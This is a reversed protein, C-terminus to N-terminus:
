PKDTIIADGGATTIAEFTALRVGADRQTTGGSGSVIVLWPHTLFTGARWSAGAALGQRYLVRNGDYDIWYIDVATSSHNIFTILVPTSHERSRATDDVTAPDLPSLVIGVPQAAPAAGEHNGTLQM